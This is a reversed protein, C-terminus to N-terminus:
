IRGNLIDPDQEKQFLEKYIGLKQRKTTVLIITVHMYRHFILPSSIVLRAPLFKIAKVMRQQQFCAWLHLLRSMLQTQKVM